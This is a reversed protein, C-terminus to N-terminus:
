MDELTLKNTPEVAGWGLAFSSWNLHTSVFSLPVYHKDKLIYQLQFIATGSDM